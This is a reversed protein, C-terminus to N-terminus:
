LPCYCVSVNSSTPADSDSYEFGLEVGKSDFEVIIRGVNEPVVSTVVDNGRFTIIRRYGHHIWSNRRPLNCRKKVDVCTIMPVLKYQSFVPVWAINESDSQQDGLQAVTPSEQAWTGEGYCCMAMALGILMLFGLKRQRVM